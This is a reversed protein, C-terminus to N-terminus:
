GDGQGRGQKSNKADITMRLGDGDALHFSVSDIYFIQDFATGTLQLRSMPDLTLDGPLTLDIGLEHRVISEGRKKARKDLQEQTLNPVREIYTNVEGDGAITHTSTRATKQKSHWSKSTSEVTKGAGLTRKVTLEMFNASAQGSPSPAQYQVLYVPDSDDDANKFYLTNDTVWAEVGEEQALRQVLQWDSTQDTIVAQDIHHLKGSKDGSDEDSVFDWGHDDAVQQAIEVATKNQYQTDSRKEIAKKQDSRAGLQVTQNAYHLTVTDIDTQMFRKTNGAGDGLILTAKDSSTLGAWFSDDIGQWNMPLSAQFSDASAKKSLTTSADIVPIQTGNIEVFGTPARATSNSLAAM